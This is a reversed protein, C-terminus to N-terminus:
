NNNGHTWNNLPVKDHVTVSQDGVTVSQDDVSTSAPETQQVKRSLDVPQPNDLQGSHKIVKDRAPPQIVTIDQHYLADDRRNLYHEDSIISCEQVIKENILEERHNSWWTTCKM